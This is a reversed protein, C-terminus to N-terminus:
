NSIYILLKLVVFHSGKLLKATLTHDPHTHPKCFPVMVRLFARQRHAVDVSDELSCNFSM